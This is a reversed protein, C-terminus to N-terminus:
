LRGIFATLYLAINQLISQRYCGSVKLYHIAKLGRAACARSFNLLNERNEESLLDIHENLITVNRENWNSYEGNLVQSFRRFKNILKSNMGIQNTSHQRYRVYPIKDYLIVGNAGSILQYILWDHAYVNMDRGCRILLNRAANNIVMTNGSAINQVLANQFSPGLRPMSSDSLPLNNEDVFITRGCYLSPTEIKHQQFFKKAKKLKDFHWIDDQDCLAYYKATIQTNTLLSIFNNSFGRQPGHYIKIKKPGLNKQLNELIEMSSDTSGDDSVYLCWKDESQSVISNLQQQLYKGGNFVGMLIAFDSAENAAIHMGTNNDLSRKKAPDNNVTQKACM